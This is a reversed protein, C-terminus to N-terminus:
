RTRPLRAEAVVDKAWNVESSVVVLGDRGVCDMSEDFDEIRIKGEIGSRLKM